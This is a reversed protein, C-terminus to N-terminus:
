KENGGKTQPEDEKDPVTKPEIDFARLLVQQNANIIHVTDEVVEVKENGQRVSYLVAGAFFVFAAISTIIFLSVIWKDIKKDALEKIDKKMEELDEKTVFNDIKDRTRTVEAFMIDHVPCVNCDTKRRGDNIKGEVTKRRREVGDWDDTM